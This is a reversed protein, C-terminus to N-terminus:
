FYHNHKEQTIRIIDVRWLKKITARSAMAMYSFSSLRPTTQVYAPGLHTGTPGTRVGKDLFSLGLATSHLGVNCALGVVKCYKSLFIISYM